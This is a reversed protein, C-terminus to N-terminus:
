TINVNVGSLTLPSTAVSLDVTKANGSADELRGNAFNWDQTAGGDDSAWSPIVILWSDVNQSSDSIDFTVDPFVVEWDGGDDQVVFVADGLNVTARAYSGGGPETMVATSPDTDTDTLADTADNYLTLELSSIGQEQLFLYDWIWEEGTDFLQYGM